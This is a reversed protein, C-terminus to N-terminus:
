AKSLLLTATTGQGVGPSDITLAGGNRRALSWALSLGLGTGQGARKTTVFPDMVQHLLDTPIGIGDDHCRLRVSDGAAQAEWRITGGEPLADM